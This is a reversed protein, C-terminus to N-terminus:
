ISPENPAFVTFLSHVIITWIWPGQGDTPSEIMWPGQWVAGRGIHLKSSMHSRTNRVWGIKMYLCSIFWISQYQFVSLSPTHAHTHWHTYENIICGTLSTSHYQIHHVDSLPRWSLELCSKVPLSLYSRPTHRKTHAYMGNHWKGFPSLAHPQVM